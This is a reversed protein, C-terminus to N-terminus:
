CDEDEVVAMLESCSLEVAVVKRGLIPTLASRRVGEVMEDTEEEWEGAARASREVQQLRMADVASCSNAGVQAM